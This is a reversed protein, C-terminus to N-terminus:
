DKLLPSSQSGQWLPNIQLLHIQDGSTFLKDSGLSLEGTGPYCSRPRLHIEDYGCLALSMALQEVCDKYKISTFLMQAVKSRNNAAAAM